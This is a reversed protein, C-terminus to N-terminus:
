VIRKTPLTLHTYSVTPLTTEYCILSGAKLYQGIKESASDMAAFDPEGTLTVFLPVVVVVVDADCVAERYKLTANLNGKEVVDQLYEKLNKEEPFPEIGENILAVTEPNIDVGIVKNGKRAYHVALPLGIKGMGIVAINM